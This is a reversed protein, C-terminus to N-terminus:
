QKKKPKDDKQQKQPQRRPKNEDQTTQYGRREDSHKPQRTTDEAM